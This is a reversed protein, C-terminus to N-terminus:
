CHGKDDGAAVSGLESSPVKASSQLLSELHQSYVRLQEEAKKQYTIDRGVAQFEVVEGKEDLLARVTWELWRREGGAGLHVQVCRDMPKDQGLSDFFSRVKSRIEKPMLDTFTRGVLNDQKVGFFNCFSRNAFTLQGKPLCRFILETQDEVVARYRAESWRLKEEAKKEETVDKLFNLTALRGEWKVRVASIELWRIQGDKRVIRFPYVQPLREGRLRKRYRELVMSRDDPHILRVFPMSLLEEKTYGMIEVTKRNVFKLHQDQAVIIAENANEVLIRYREESAKLAEEARKQETIDNGSSLTGVVTGAEDRVVTNYWAIIREEGAKTLVPNEYETIPSAGEDILSRFVERTKRRVRSPLFNNFWSKGLIEDEDYGLLECAKRNILTVKGKRDLAVILAGATHLYREARDREKQAEAWAEVRETIDGFTTVVGGPKGAPGKFPVASVNIWRVSGDGRSMGLVVDKVPREERMAVASPIEGLPMPTGDPRIAQWEPGMYNRSRIESRRVGLIAEASPNAEVIKGFPDILLVGEAMTEFLTGLSEMRKLIEELRERYGPQISVAVAAIVDDGSRLPEVKALLWNGKPREVLPEVFIRPEKREFVDKLATRLAPRNKRSVLDHISKDIERPEGAADSAFLILGKPSLIRIKQPPVQTFDDWSQSLGTPRTKEPRVASRAGKGAM